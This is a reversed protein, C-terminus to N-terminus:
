PEGAALEALTGAPDAGLGLAATLGPSLSLMRALGQAARKRREGEPLSALQPSAEMVALHNKVLLQAEQQGTDGARLYQRERMQKVLKEARAWDRPLLEEPVGMVYGLVSWLHLYDEAGARDLEGRRMAQMAELPQWAFTYLVFAYAEQNVPTRVDAAWGLKENVQQRVGLHLRALALARRANREEFTKYDAAPALIPGMWRATEELRKGYDTALRGTAMLVPLVDRMVYTSLLSTSGLIQEIMGRHQEHFKLGRLVREPEAWEPMKEPPTLPMRRYHDWDPTAGQWGALPLAMM